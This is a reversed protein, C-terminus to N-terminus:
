QTAKNFSPSLFMPIYIEESGDTNEVFVGYILIHAESIILKEGVFRTRIHFVNSFCKSIRYGSYNYVYYYSFHTM